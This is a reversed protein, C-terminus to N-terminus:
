LGELRTQIQASLGGDAALNAGTLGQSLGSLLFVAARAVIDAGDATTHVSVAPPLHGDSSAPTLANVRLGQASWTWRNAMVWALMGWGVLRPALTPEADLGWRTVFADLDDRRLAAAARVQALSAAWAAHPPAARAVIAGGPVLKHALAETLHRPALLGQALTQAPALGELAPFLALGDIGEPLATAVADMAAPDTLDTRYLAALHDFVAAGDVGLVEAGAVECARAVARGLGSASGLVVIRRGQLLTPPLAFPTAMTM